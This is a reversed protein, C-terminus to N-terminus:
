PTRNKILDFLDPPLYGKWKEIMWKETIKKIDNSAIRSRNVEYDHHNDSKIEYSGPTHFRLESSL